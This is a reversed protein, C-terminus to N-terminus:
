KQRASLYIVKKDENPKSDAVKKLRKGLSNIKRNQKDIQESLTRVVEDRANCGACDNIPTIIENDKM